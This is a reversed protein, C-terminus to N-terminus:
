GPRYGARRTPGPRCRSGRPRGAARVPPLWKRATRKAGAPRCAPAFRFGPLWGPPRQVAPRREAVM